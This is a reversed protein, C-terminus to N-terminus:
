FLQKTFFRIQLREKKHVALHKAIVIFSIGLCGIKISSLTTHFFVFITFLSFTVITRAAHPRIILVLSFLLYFVILYFLPRIEPFLGIMVGFSVAIAKGGKKHQFFPFAHGLVPALMVPVFHLSSVSLFQQSIYVPLFGKGLECFLVLTGLWFGGYTYANAVGPNHDAPLACIDVGKGLMPIWYAFLISGALFGFVTFFFYNM